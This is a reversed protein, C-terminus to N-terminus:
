FQRVIYSREPSKIKVEEKSTDKKSMIRKAKVPISPICDDNMIEDMLIEKQKPDKTSLLDIELKIGKLKEQQLEKRSNEINQIRTNSNNQLFSERRLLTKHEHISDEKKRNLEKCLLSQNELDQNLSRINLQTERIAYTKKNLQEQLSIYTKEMASKKQLSKDLQNKSNIYDQNINFLKNKAIEIKEPTVELCPTSLEKHMQSNITKLRATENHIKKIEDKSKFQMNKQSLIKEKKVQISKLMIQSEEKKTTLDSACRSSYYELEKLEQSLKLEIHRKKENLINTKIIQTSISELSKKKILVETQLEQNKVIVSQGLTQQDKLEDVLKIKSRDHKNLVKNIASTERNYKRTDNRKEKISSCLKIISHAAKEKQRKLRKFSEELKTTESQLKKNKQLTELEREKIISLEIQSEQVLEKLRNKNKLNNTEKLKIEEQAITLSKKEEQFNSLQMQLKINEEEYLSSQHKNLSIKELIQENTNQSIKINSKLGSREEELSCIKQELNSLVKSTNSINLALTEDKLRLDKSTKNSKLLDKELLIISKNLNDIKVESKSILLQHEENQYLITNINFSYQEIDEELSYIQKQASDIKEKKEILSSEIATKERDLKSINKLIHVEQNKLAECTFERDKLDIKLNSIEVKHEELKEDNIILQRKLERESNYKEATLEKIEQLGSNIETIKNKLEKQESEKNLFSKNLRIYESKKSTLLSQKTVFINQQSKINSILHSNKAELSSLESSFNTMKSTIEKERRSFDSLSMKNHSINEKISKNEVQLEKLLEQQWQLGKEKKGIQALEDNLKNRLVITEQENQIIINENEKFANIFFKVENKSNFIRQGLNKIQQQAADIGQKQLDVDNIQMYLQNDKSGLQEYLTEINETLRSLKLNNVQIKDKHRKSKIKKLSLALHGKLSESKYKKALLDTSTNKLESEDNIIETVLKKHEIGTKKLTLQNVKLLKNTLKNDKM